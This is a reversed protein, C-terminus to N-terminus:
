AAKCPFCRDRLYGTEANCARERAAYAADTENSQCLPVRGPLVCIAHRVGLSPFAFSFAELPARPALHRPRTLLVALAETVSLPENEAAVGLGIKSPRQGEPTASSHPVM